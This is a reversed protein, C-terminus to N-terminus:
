VAAAPRRVQAYVAQEFGVLLEVVRADFFPLVQTLFVGAVGQTRDVWFYSNFIGAWDGTGARRMGELDELYLHFGLGWTAKVPLSPVDNSLEPMTSRIVEPLAIGGLHDSLALDVTEPRLIRAGELEGGNLLARLFRCYDGATAYLGHGGPWFEPQAPLDLDTAALGGDPTRAHVAMLRQRQADSPSFTTDTMGLPATIHEALHADLTQGSVAEVVQGLWDVNIGYEWRTGPDDVLPLGLCARLGSLPDPTGTVQHYRLMNENLFMYALGATHTLLNRITAQRVPPRLLPRDGDFGTLVQLEGFAPLVSAVTQDLELRGAEM